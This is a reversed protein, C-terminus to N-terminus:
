EYLSWISTATPQPATPPRQSHWPTTRQNAETRRLPTTTPNSTTHPNHSSIAAHGWRGCMINTRRRDDSVLLRRRRDEEVVECGEWLLGLVDVGVLELTGTAGTGQGKGKSAQNLNTPLHPKVM